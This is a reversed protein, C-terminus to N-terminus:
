SGNRSDRYYRSRCTTLRRVLFTFYFFLTIFDRFLRRLYQITFFHRLRRTFVNTFLGTFGRFMYLHIRLRNSNQGSIFIRPSRTANRAKYLRLFLGSLLRLTHSHCNRTTRIVINRRFFPRMMVLTIIGNTFRRVTGKTGTFQARLVSIVIRIQRIDSLFSFRTVRKLIGNVRGLLTTLFRLVVLMIVRFFFSTANIIRISLGQRRFTLLRLTSLALHTASPSTRGVRYRGLLYLIRRDM